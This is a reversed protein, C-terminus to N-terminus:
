SHHEVDGALVFYNISYACTASEIKHIMDYKLYGIKSM